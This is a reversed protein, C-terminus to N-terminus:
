IEFTELEANVLEDAIYQSLSDINPYNWMLLPSIHLGFRQKGLKAISMVQVSELGYSDFPAKIDIEDADIGLQEAIQEALWDQIEDATMTKTSSHQGTTM